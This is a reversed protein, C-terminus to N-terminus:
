GWATRKVWVTFAICVSSGILLPIGIYVANGYTIDNVAFYAGVLPTWTIPFGNTFKWIGNVYPIPQAEWPNSCSTAPPCTIPDPCSPPQCSSNCDISKESYITKPAILGILFTFIPLAVLAVKARLSLHNEVARDILKSNYGSDKLQAQLSECLEMPTQNVLVPYPNFAEKLIKFKEPSNQSLETLAQPTQPM